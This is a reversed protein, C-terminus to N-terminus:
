ENLLITKSDEIIKYYYERYPHNKLGGDEHEIRWKFTEEDIEIQCGVNYLIKDGKRVCTVLRGDPNNIEIFDDVKSFLKGYLEAENNLASNYFMRSNCYMRSNDYMVSNDYMKSNNYMVSYDHMESNDFMISSKHIESEDFMKSNGHVLSNDMAKANNYIWCNGCQSLNKEKEVYGGIDDKKVDGFDRLARIRHLLRGQWEITNKEDMLIEYKKNNM